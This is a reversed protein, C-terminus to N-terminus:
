GKSAIAALQTEIPNSENAAETLSVADIVTVDEIGIFALAQLLYPSAFDVESGVPVGGSAIVLYAKKNRLLGEPGNETYRFTLRARAVQDIWAKMVAPVGFNYIPVAMVVHSAQQLEAVLADSLALVSRDAEDRQEPDTFNAHIWPEDIFPLGAALDRHQVDAGTQQQLQRVLQASLERTVSGEFRGSSNIHLITM